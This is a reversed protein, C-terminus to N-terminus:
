DSEQRLLGIVRSLGMIALMALLIVLAFGCRVRVELAVVALVFSAWLLRGSLM